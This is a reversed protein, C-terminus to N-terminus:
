KAKKMIVFLGNDSQALATPRTPDAPIALKVTMTDGNLEFIGLQLKGADDGETITLDFTMPKKAPDIKFTGRENVAGNTTQAYKEGTFTLSMEMGGLSEGNITAIAWTGQVSAVAKAVADKAPDQAVAPVVLAFVTALIASRIM